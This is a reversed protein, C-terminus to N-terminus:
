PPLKAQPLANPMMGFAPPVYPPFQQIVLVRKLGNTVQTYSARVEPKKLSFDNHTLM